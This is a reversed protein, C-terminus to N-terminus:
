GAVQTRFYHEALARLSTKQDRTQRTLVKQQLNNLPALTDEPM